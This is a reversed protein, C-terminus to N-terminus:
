VKVNRRAVGDCRRGQLREAACLRTSSFVIASARMFGITIGLPDSESGRMRAAYIREATRPNIPGEYFKRMAAVQPASLCTPADSPGGTCQLASPDWHWDRPGRLLNDSSLGGDKGVCQKVIAATMATRQDICLPCTRKPSCASQSGFDNLLRLDGPCRVVVP